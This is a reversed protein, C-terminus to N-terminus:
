VLARNGTPIALDFFAENAVRIGHGTIKYLRRRPREAESPDIEEWESTLLGADEFRILIPYLTGSWLKTARRIDAGSLKDAPRELFTRLVKLSQHTLRPQSLNKM